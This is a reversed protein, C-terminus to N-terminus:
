LSLELGYNALNYSANKDRDCTFGCRCKYVRDSLKLDKKIAGCHSCTKSSPYFTPVQIFEIGYKECKYKMQN